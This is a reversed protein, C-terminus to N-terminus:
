SSPIRPWLFVLCYCVHSTYFKLDNRAQAATPLNTPSHIKTCGGRDSARKQQDQKAAKPALDTCQFLWQKLTMLSEAPTWAPRSRSPWPPLDTSTCHTTACHRPITRQALRSLGRVLSLQQSTIWVCYVIAMCRHAYLQTRWSCESVSHSFFVTLRRNEGNRLVVIGIFLFFQCCTPM